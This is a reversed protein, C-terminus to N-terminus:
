DVRGTGVTERLEVMEGTGRSRGLGKDIDRRMEPKQLYDRGDYIGKEV